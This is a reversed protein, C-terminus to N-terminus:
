DPLEKSVQVFKPYCRKFIEILEPDFQKGSQSVIEEYADEPTWKEKYSRKSILADFVDVISMIRSYFDIDEDKIKHYGNGDWREHHELAIKKAINMIHGPSHELLRYGYDTHKKIEEYEGPTLKGPKEIIDEPILLKGIDHMMSAISLSEREEEGIGLEQAMIDIYRSVRKVHSGTQGSKSECIEAFARVIEEQTQHMDNSYKFVKVLMAQTRNTIFTLALVYFAFEFLRPSLGYLLIDKMSTLPDSIVSTYYSAIHSIIMSVVTAGASFRKLRAIGYPTFLIIPFLFLLIVHYTLVSYMLGVQMPIIAAVVYRAMAVDKIVKFIITPLFAFIMTLAMVLNMPGQEIVYVGIINLFWILLSFYGFIRCARQIFIDVRKYEKAFENNFNM